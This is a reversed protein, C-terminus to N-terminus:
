LDLQAAHMKGMRQYYGDDTVNRNRFPVDAGIRMHHLEHLANQRKRAGGCVPLNSTTQHDYSRIATHAIFEVNSVKVFERRFNERVLFTSKALHIKVQTICTCSVM